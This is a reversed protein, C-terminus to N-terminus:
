RANANGVHRHCVSALSSRSIQENQQCEATCSNGPFKMHRVPPPLWRKDGQHPPSSLLMVVECKHKVTVGLARGRTARSKIKCPLGRVTPLRLSENKLFFFFTSFDELIRCFRQNQALFDWGEDSSCMNKHPTQAPHKYIPNSPLALPNPM